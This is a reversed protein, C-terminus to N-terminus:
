SEVKDEPLMAVIMDNYEMVTYQSNIDQLQNKLEDISVKSWCPDSPDGIRRLDDIVIIHNKIPHNKIAELENYLPNPGQVNIDGHADLFIFCPETIENLIEPLVTRSDGLHIKVKPNDKFKEVCPTYFPEHIEISHITKFYGDAWSIGNGRYTGTEIYTQQPRDFRILGFIEKSSIDGPQIGAPVPRPTWNM